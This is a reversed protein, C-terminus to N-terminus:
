RVSIQHARNQVQRSLFQIVTEPEAAWRWHSRPTECYLTEAACALYRTCGASDAVEAGQCRNCAAWWQALSQGYGPFHRDEAGHLILAPIPASCTAKGLDAATWGTGSLVVGNPPPKMPIDVVLALASTAGDSHGALYIQGEAVCWQRAVDKAVDGLPSITTRRLSGPSNAYAILFGHETATHTLGSFRESLAANMGAPALVLLLAHRRDARYNAPTVLTYRQGEPTHLRHRGIGGSAEGPSCSGLSTAYSADGSEMAEGWHLLSLALGLLVAAMLVTFGWYLKMASPLQRIPTTVGSADRKM